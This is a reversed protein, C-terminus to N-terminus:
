CPLTKCGPGVPCFTVEGKVRTLTAVCLREEAESVKFIFTYILCHAPSPWSQSPISTSLRTMGQGFGVGSGMGRSKSPENGVKYIINWTIQEWNLEAARLM